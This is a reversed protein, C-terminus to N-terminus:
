HNYMVNEKRLVTNFGWHSEVYSSLKMEFEKDESLAVFVGGNM